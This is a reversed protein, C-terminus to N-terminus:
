FPSSNLTFRIIEVMEDHFDARMAREPIEAGRESLERYCAAYADATEKAAAEDFSEFLRHRVISAIESEAAPTIVREHRASVKRAEDLDEILMETENGFADKSDALTLVLSINDRSAAFEILTMLFAVTQEALDSQENATPVAKAVRLYRAIEDLMILTPEDGM